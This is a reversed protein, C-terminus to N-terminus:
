AAVLDGYAVLTQVAPVVDSAKHLEWTRTGDAALPLNDGDAGSNYWCVLRRGGAHEVLRRVQTARGADTGAVGLEMLAWQKGYEAAAARAPAERALLDGGAQVYLDVGLLDWLHASPVWDRWAAGVGTTAGHFTNGMWTPVLVILPAVSRFSRAFETWTEVFWAATNGKSPHEPEHEICAVLPRGARERDLAAAVQDYFAMRAAPTAGGHRKISVCPVQGAALAPRVAAVITEVSQSEAVSRFARHARWTAGPRHQLQIAQLRDFEARGTPSSGYLTRAPLTGLATPPQAVQAQCATLERRLRDRDQTV